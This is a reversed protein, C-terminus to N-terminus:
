VVARLGHVCEATLIIKGESGVLRQLIPFNLGTGCGIELVNGHVLHSVHQYPFLLRQHVPNDSAIESSAIETTKYM